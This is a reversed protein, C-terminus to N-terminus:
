AHLVAHLVLGLLAPVLWARGPADRWAGHALLGAALLYSLAAIFALTM